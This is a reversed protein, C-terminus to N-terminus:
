LASLSQGSGTYSLIPPQSPQAPHAHQSWCRCRSGLIHLVSLATYLKEPSEKSEISTTAGKDITGSCRFPAELGSMTM